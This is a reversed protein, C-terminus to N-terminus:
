NGKKPLFRGTKKKYALYNEGFRKTLLEEEKVAVKIYGPIAALPVLTIISPWTLPLSLFMLFYGLYSPHRVYKYPGWTILKHNETMKWSTAYRGRVIVSWIFIAYGSGALFTGALQLLSAYSSKYYLLNNNQLLNPLKLAALSYFITEIFYIFTGLAAISVGLGSPCEVEAYPEKRETQKHAILINYLNVTIFCALCTLLFSATLLEPEM